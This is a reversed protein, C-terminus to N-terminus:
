VVAAQIEEILNKFDFVMEEKVTIQEGKAYTRGFFHHICISRQQCYQTLSPKAMSAILTAGAAAGWKFHPGDGGSDGMIIIKNFPIRFKEAITATNSSKDTIESLNLMLKPDQRGQNFRILTHASLVPLFPLLEKALARQFYGQMGTTNIMFLIDNRSCWTILDKVGNYIKFRAALYADMQAQTIPAPLLAKIQEVATALTIANSTYRQFIDTLSLQLNPHHFSIADFPGCPALCQNWDSSVMAKYSHGELTM